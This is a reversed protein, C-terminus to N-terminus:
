FLVALAVFSEVFEGGALLARNQVPDALHLVDVFADVGRENEDFVEFLVFSLDDGVFEGGFEFPRHELRLM